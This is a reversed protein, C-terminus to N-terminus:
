DLVNVTKVLKDISTTLYRQETVGKAAHGVIVRITEIPVDKEHMWSIFTKRTDHMKHDKGFRKRWRILVTQYKLQENRYEFLYRVRNQMYKEILPVIREHIPIVRDIGAETKLGGIMYREELHINEIEIDLLEGIRMGTYLLIIAIDSLETNEKWLEDREAITFINKNKPAESKVKVFQSYNTVKMDNELAFQYMQNWLQKMKSKTAHSKDCAKMCKKLHESRIEVFNYNHLMASNKFAGDYAYKNDKTLEEDRSEKWRTYMEAFTINADELRYPDANYNALALLADGRSEFYGLYHYQQKGDKWGTTIRVGYPRRRNGGLKVVGGFGNSMRM